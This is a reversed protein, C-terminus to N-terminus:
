EKGRHATVQTFTTACAGSEDMAAIAQTRDEVSGMRMANKGDTNCMSRKENMDKSIALGRGLIRHINVLVDRHSETKM